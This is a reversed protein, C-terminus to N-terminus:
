SKRGAELHAWVPQDPIHLRLRDGVFLRGTREVSATVGRRGSSASKFLKGIGPMDREIERSPLNCPRNEMDIILCTGNEAQLRSSPPIHSFDDIGELVMSAGLYIPDLAELGMEAATAAMEEASVISLQRTNRIETGVKHQATLRACSPRTLGSHSDEVDGAFDLDLSDMAVARLTAARDAVRGMWTISAFFDTPKLAPM